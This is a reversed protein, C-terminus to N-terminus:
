SPPARWENGVNSRGAPEATADSQALSAGAGPFRINLQNNMTQLPGARATVIRLAQPTLESERSRSKAKRDSTM